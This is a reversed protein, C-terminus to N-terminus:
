QFYRVSSWRSAFKTSARTRECREGICGPTYPWVSFHARYGGTHAKWRCYDRRPQHRVPPHVSQHCSPVCLNDPQKSRRRHPTMTMPGPAAAPQHPQTRPRTNCYDPRSTTPRSGENARMQRLSARPHSLIKPQPSCLAHQLFFFPYAPRSWRLLTLLSALPLDGTKPGGATSM